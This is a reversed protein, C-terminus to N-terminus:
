YGFVRGEQPSRVIRHQPNAIILYRVTDVPDKMAGKGGDAGTWQSLCFWTNKCNEAIVLRPARGNFHYIMEGNDQPAIDIREKDYSLCDNIMSVGERITTSGAEAGTDRGASYFWLKYREMAEILTESAGHTQTETNGERSDMIRCLAPVEIRGTASAWDADGAVQRELQFLEREVREIEEAYEAFGLGWLKQAPGAAGDMKAAGSKKRGDASGGEDHIAWAGPNGVGQAVIYDDPQPWERAIWILPKGIPNPCVKAWIMFWNRGDTCPDVVHYWTGIKPLMKAPRRHAAPCLLPLQVGVLRTAVGYARWKIEDQSRKILDNKQAEWNGGHKNDYIHYYMVTCNEAAHHQVRPMMEYGIIEDRRRIPLLEAPVEVLTTAEATLMAVTRSYGNKPTFSIALVGQFLKALIPRLHTRWAEDLAAQQAGPKWQDPPTALIKARAELAIRLAPLIANSKEAKTMLRLRSAKVWDPPVMEDAWVTDPRPGELSNVDGGGYFKFLARSGNELGFANDTFGNVRNYSMKTNSTKKAKGSEPRLEIPLHDYIIRQPVERSGDEDLSMQWCLWDASEVMIMAFRKGLYYSKGSGNGGLVALTIPEGPKSVRLEALRWDTERWIVPEYGHRFPDRKEDHIQGAREQLFSDVQNADMVCSRPGIRVTMAGVQHPLSWAVELRPWIPHPEQEDLLPQLHQRLQSM